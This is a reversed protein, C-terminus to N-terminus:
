AAYGSVASHKVAIDEADGRVSVLRARNKLYDFVAGQQAQEDLVKRCYKANSRQRFHPYCYWPGNGNTGASLSGPYVCRRVGDTYECLYIGAQTGKKKGGDVCEGCARCYNDFDRRKKGCECRKM